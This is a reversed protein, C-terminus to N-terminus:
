RGTGGETAVEPVAEAEEKAKRRRKRPKKEEHHIASAMFSATLLTFVLAQVFAPIM